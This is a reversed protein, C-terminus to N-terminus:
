RPFDFMAEKDPQHLKTRGTIPTQTKTGSLYVVVAFCNKDFSLLTFASFCEPYSFFFLLVNMFPRKSFHKPSKINVSSSKKPTMEARWKGRQPPWKVPAPRRAAFRQLGTPHGFSVQKKSRLLWPPAATIWGLQSNGWELRASTIFAEYYRLPDTANREGSTVLKNGMSRWMFGWCMIFYHWGWGGLSWRKGRESQNISRSSCSHGGEWRLYWICKKGEM